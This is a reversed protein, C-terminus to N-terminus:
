GLSSENRAKSEFRAGEAMSRGRMFAAVDMEKGGARQVRTPILWGNGTAVRFEKNSDVAITGPAPLDQGAEVRASYIHLVEGELVTYAGPKPAFARIRLLLDAAAESWQLEGMEKTLKGAETAQSHDQEQFNVTGSDIQELAESLAAAALDALRDTLEGANENEGIPTERVLAVPGADMERVVRMVSIGTTKKGQLIVHNIPAAGRFNPLVSAHANILYGLSPLERIAKPLFQGFAVVVGIDARLAALEDRIEGVKEPRFLPIDWFEARASVPSPSLKRGRGRRRDPQSVVGVVEVPSSILRELSPVAIEPTGFFIIRM